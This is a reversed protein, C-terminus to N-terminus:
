GTVSWFAQFDSDNGRVHGRAFDLQGIAHGAFPEFHADHGAQAPAVCAVLRLVHGDHEVARRAEM